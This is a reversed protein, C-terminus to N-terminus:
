GPRELACVFPIPAALDPMERLRRFIAPAVLALLALLAVIPVFFSGGLGSAAAPSSEPPQLPGNGNLPVPNAGGGGGDSLASATDAMMPSPVGGAFSNKGGAPAWLRFPEIGESGAFYRLTLGGLIDVREGPFAGDPLSAPSSGAQHNSFPGADAGTSAPLDGDAAPVILDGAPHVSAVVRSLPAATSVLTTGAEVLSQGTKQLSHQASGALHGISKAGDAVPAVSNASEVVPTVSNTASEVVPTVSNAASEVVPAVAEAASQRIGGVLESAQSTTAAVPGGRDSSSLDISAVDSPVPASSPEPAPAPPSSEAEASAGGDGAPAATAEAPSAPEAEAAPPSAQEDGAPSEVILDAAAGVAGTTEANAPTASGLLVAMTMAIAIALALMGAPM